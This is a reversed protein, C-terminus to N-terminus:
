WPTILLHEVLLAVAAQAVLWYRVQSRPLLACALPLWVIWPLWIREVEGKTMGTLAALLVASLAGGSLARAGTLARAGVQSGGGASLLRTLGAVVAPGAAISLAALDAWCWYGYPRSGGYGALYRGRVVTFGDWWAFGAVAFFAVVLLGGLVAPLVMRWRRRAVLLALAPVGLLPAGYSLFCTLGLVAGGAGAWGTAWSTGSSGTDTTAARALLAVGLVGTAAILADASVGTWIAAPLLVLFPLSRRAWEEGCALRATVAVGPVILAAALLCTAAAPGPGPLGVRALLVFILLMGPPHGSTHTHWPTPSDAPVSATFNALLHPLAVARPVDILYEYRTALPGLVGARGGVLALSVTWVLGATSATSLAQRWGWTRAVRPGFVVVAAATLLALPTGPGVHPHFHAFLPAAPAHVSVGARSLLAGIVAAALVLLGALLVAVLDGRWENPGALGSVPDRPRDVQDAVCAV